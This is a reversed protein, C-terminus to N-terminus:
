NCLGQFEATTEVGDRCIGTVLMQESTIRFCTDVCTLLPSANLPKTLFLQTPPLPELLGTLIPERDNGRSAPSSPPSPHHLTAGGKCVCLFSVKCRHHHSNRACVKRTTSSKLGKGEPQRKVALLQRRGPRSELDWKGTGMGQQVQLHFVWAPTHLAAAFVM